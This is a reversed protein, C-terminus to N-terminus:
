TVLQAGFCLALGLAVLNLGLGVGFTALVFCIVGLLVLVKAANM